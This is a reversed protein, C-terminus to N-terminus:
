LKNVCHVIDGITEIDLLENEPIKRSLKLHKEIDFLLEIRAFSDECIEALETDNQAIIKYKNSIFEKVIKENTM